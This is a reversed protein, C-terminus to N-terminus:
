KLVTPLKKRVCSSINKTTNARQVVLSRLADFAASGPQFRDSDCFVLCDKQQDNKAIRIYKGNRLKFYAKSKILRIVCDSENESLAIEDSDFYDQATRDLLAFGTANIQHIM